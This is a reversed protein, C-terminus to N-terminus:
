DEEILVEDVIHSCRELIGELEFVRAQILDIEKRLAANEAELSQAREYECLAEQMSVRLDADTNKVREAIASLANADAIAQGSYKAM